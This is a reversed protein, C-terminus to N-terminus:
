EVMHACHLEWDGCIVHFRHDLRSVYPDLFGVFLWDLYFSLSQRTFVRWIKSTANNQALSVTVRM